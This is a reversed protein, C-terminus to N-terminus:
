AAFSLLQAHFRQRPAAEATDGVVRRAAAQASARIEAQKPGQAERILELLRGVDSPDVIIEETRVLPTAFIRFDEVSKVEVMQPMADIPHFNMVTENLMVQMRSGFASVCFIVHHGAEDFLRRDVVSTVAYCQLGKHRLALRVGYWAIDDEASIEWGAQQLRFTDSEWGAWQLRHPASLFRREGLRATAM